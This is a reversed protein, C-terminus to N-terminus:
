GKVVGSLGLLDEPLSDMTMWRKAETNYVEVASLPEQTVSVGGMVVIKKGVVLACAGARKTPM